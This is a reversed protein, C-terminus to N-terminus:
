SGAGVITTHTLTHTTGGARTRLSRALRPQPAEEDSQSTGDSPTRARSWEGQLGGKYLRGPGGTMGDHRPPPNEKVVKALAMEAVALSPGLSGWPVCTSRSPVMCLRCLRHAYVHM